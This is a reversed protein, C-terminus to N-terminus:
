TVGDLRLGIFNGAVTIGTAGDITVGNGAARILGLSRLASGSSGKIFRLGAFHNFDVEVLPKGAFAPATTGDINVKGTIDPLQGSTLQITGTVSFNILDDGVAANANLIAQRLSGAGSDHLNLVTFTSPLSRDELQEISLALTARKRQPMTSTRRQ